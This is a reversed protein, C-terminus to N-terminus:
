WRLFRAGAAAGLSTAILIATGYWTVFFLPSDETCHLAYGAAAGGSAALGILAGTLAPRLAAGRRFLALGLIIAPASLATISALCAAASSGLATPLIQAPPTQVLRVAFLALAAAVPVALVWPRVAAGPRASRLALVLAAVALVLPLVVKALVAPNDLASLLGARPGALLLFLGASLAAAGLIAGAALPASLPAPPPSAALRRILDDTSRPDTM